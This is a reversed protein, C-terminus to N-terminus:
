GQVIITGKVSPNTSSYYPYSGPSLNATVFESYGKSKIVGTDFLKGSLPDEPGTGSTISQPSSSNNGIFIEEGRTINTTEPRFVTNQEADETITIIAAVFSTDGSSASSSTSALAAPFVSGNANVTMMFVSMPLGIISLLLLLKMVIKKSTVNVM